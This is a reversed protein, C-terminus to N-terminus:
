GGYRSALEAALRATEALYKAIVEGAAPTCTRYTLRYDDFGKNYAGAILDRQSEAIGDAALLSQMKARFQAGDGDGCLDRLYALSGTMAALRLLQLEYPPPPEAAPTAHPPAGAAPSAKPASKSEPKAAPAEAAWSCSIQLAALSAAIIALRRV